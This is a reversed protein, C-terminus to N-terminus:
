KKDYDEKKMGCKKCHYWPLDLVPSRGIVEWIHYYCDAEKKKQEEKSLKGYENDEGNLMKEFEALLDDENFFDDEEDDRYIWCNILVNGM